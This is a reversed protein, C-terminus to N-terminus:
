ITAKSMIETIEEKSVGEKEAIKALLEIIVTQLRNRKNVQIATSITVGLILLSLLGGIAWVLLDQFTIELLM